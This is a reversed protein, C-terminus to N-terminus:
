SAPVGRDQKPMSASFHCNPVVEKACQMFWATRLPFGTHLQETKPDPMKKV